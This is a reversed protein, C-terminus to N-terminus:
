PKMRTLLAQYRPDNRLQDFADENDLWQRDNFGLDIAKELHQLAAPLDNQLSHFLSWSLYPLPQDPLLTQLQELRSRAEKTKGWKAYAMATNNLYNAKLSPDLNFAKNYAAIAAPYDKLRYYCAGLSSQISATDPAFFSAKLFLTKASEFDGISRLQNGKVEYFFGLNDKLLAMNPHAGPLSNKFIGLAKEEFKIASDLNKMQFLLVGMNHYSTALHPHDPSLSKQQIFIAKEHAELAQPYRDMYKHIIALNNYSAALSPHDPPLFKKRIAMSMEEAALAQLYEGMDQHIMALNNYSTALDPHDPSLTRKRIAVAKEEYALAKSYEGMDQHIMALNNYAKALEPHDASLSKQKIATAKEQNDLAKTYDGMVQHIIALNGYSTAIDLHDFSLSKQQIAIAKEQAALAKPYEGSKIYILALNTYFAALDPNEPSNSEQHIAIAKEQAELAKPYEGMDKRIMALSNYSVGLSPHYPSLTNQKIALCREQYDLAQHYHGGDRLISSTSDFELALELDEQGEKITMLLELIREHCAAAKLYQFTLLHTSAALRNSEIEQRMGERLYQGGQAVNTSDVRNRRYADMKENASATLVSDNLVRLVELFEGKELYDFAERYRDSAFDLNVKAMQLSIEPLRLKLQELKEELFDEAAFRDALKQDFQANITAITTKQEEITGRLKRIMENHNKLLAELNIRNYEVQAQALHGPKAVAIRLRSADGVTVKALEGTDVLVFHPHVVSLGAPTGADQKAFVMIFEGSNGTVQTKAKPASIEAGPVYTLVGSRYLSNHVLVNGRLPIEQAVARSTNVLLLLALLIWNKM